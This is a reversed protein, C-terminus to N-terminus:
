TVRRARTPAAVAAAADVAPAVVGINPNLPDDDSGAVRDIGTKAASRAPSVDCAAL